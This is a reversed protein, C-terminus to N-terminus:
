VALNLLRKLTSKLKNTISQSALAANFENLLMSRRLFNRRDAHSPRRNADDWPYHKRDILEESTRHWTALEVMGFLLMNMVTAAENSELLRLEQKGWGWIDKLDKFVEEIGFRVGYSELIEKASQDENTSMLPVWVKENEKILVVKIPKGKTLKSTAVFCKVKKRVIQGYQRCEVYRWGQKSEVMAKMDIRDGYTKPRGRQNKKKPPPVEFVVADRRLRTITTVTSLDKLPLLM